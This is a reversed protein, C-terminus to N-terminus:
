AGPAIPDAVSVSNVAGQAFGASSLDTRNGWCPLANASFCQNTSGTTVWRLLGLVPNGGGNTFDFTILMDGKTRVPTVGNAALTDSQNFEFDMNASGLVNTREWGLYLFFNGNSNEHAVYFRSLDSKNPPISGSVVSPNAGDEKAGQGLADDGSG